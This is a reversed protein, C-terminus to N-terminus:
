DHENEEITEELEDSQDLAPISYEEKFWKGLDVMQCRKCCFPLYRADKSADIKQKCNPCQHSPAKRKM